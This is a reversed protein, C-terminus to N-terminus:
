SPDSMMIRDFVAPHLADDFECGIDFRDAWKVTARRPPLGPLTIWLVEGIRLREMAALRVGHCSLDLTVGAMRVTSRRYQVKASIGRRESRRPLLARTPRHETATM